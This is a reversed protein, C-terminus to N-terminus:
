YKLAIQTSLASFIQFESVNLDIAQSSQLASPEHGHERLLREWRPVVEDEWTPNGSLVSFVGNLKVIM